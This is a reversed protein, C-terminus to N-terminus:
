FCELMIGAQFPVVPEKHQAVALVQLSSHLLNSDAQQNQLRELPSCLLRHLPTCATPHAEEGGQKRPDTCGKLALLAPDAAFRSLEHYKARSVQFIM